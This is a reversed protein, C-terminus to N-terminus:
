TNGNTQCDPDLKKEKKRNKGMEKRGFACKYRM